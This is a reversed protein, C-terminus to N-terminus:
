VCGCCRAATLGTLNTVRPWSRLLASDPAAPGQIVEMQREKKRKRRDQSGSGPFFLPYLHREQSAGRDRVGSM